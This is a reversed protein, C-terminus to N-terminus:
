KQGGELTTAIITHDSRGLYRMIQYDVLMDEHDLRLSTQIATKNIKITLSNFSRACIVFDVKAWTQVGVEGLIIVYYKFRSWLM